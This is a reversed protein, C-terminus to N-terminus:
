ESDLEGFRYRITGPKSSTSQFAGPTMATQPDNHVARQLCRLRLTRGITVRVIRDPDRAIRRFVDVTQSGARPVLVSETATTRRECEPYSRSGPPVTGVAAYPSSEASFEARRVRLARKHSRSNAPVLRRTRGDKTLSESA